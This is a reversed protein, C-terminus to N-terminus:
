RRTSMSIKFKGTAVFYAGVAALGWLILTGVDDVIGSVQANQGSVVALNGRALSPRRRVYGDEPLLRALGSVSANFMGALGGSEGDGETTLDTRVRERRMLGDVDDGEEALM